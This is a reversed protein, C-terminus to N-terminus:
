PLDFPRNSSYIISPISSEISSYPHTKELKEEHKKSSNWISANVNYTYMCLIHIFLNFFFCRNSTPDNFPNRYCCDCCDIILNFLHHNEHKKRHNGYIIEMTHTGGDVPQTLCGLCASQMAETKAM